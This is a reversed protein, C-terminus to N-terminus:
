KIYIHSLKYSFIDNNTLINDKIISLSDDISHYEFNKNIKM